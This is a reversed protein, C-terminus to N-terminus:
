QEGFLTTEIIYCLIHGILIHAEQVRPTDKSPVSIVHDAYPKMTQIHAGVMAITAVKKEQAKKLAKLVNTSTGSTSIGILVDDPEALADVQREFVQDYTNDNSVATLISTNTTLAISPLAKREFYFKSVLECSLHQADAASGGNGCWFIKRKKELANIMVEAVTSIVDLNGKLLQQKVDISEKIHHTIENRFQKKDM